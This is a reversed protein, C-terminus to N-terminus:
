FPKARRDVNDQQRNSQIHTTHAHRHNSINRSSLLLSHLSPYSPYRRVALFQYLLHQTLLVVAKSRRIQLHVFETLNKRKEGKILRASTSYRDYHWFYCLSLPLVLFLLLYFILLLATSSRAETVTTITINTSTPQWYVPMKDHIGDSM